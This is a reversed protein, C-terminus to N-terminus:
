IYQMAHEGGLTLNGETLIYQVGKVRIKSVWYTAAAVKEIRHPRKCCLRTVVGDVIPTEEGRLDPSIRHRIEKYIM